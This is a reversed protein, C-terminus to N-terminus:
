LMGISQMAIFRDPLRCRIARHLSSAARFGIYDESLLADVYLHVEAHCEPGENLWGGGRIVQNANRFDSEPNKTYWEWVNGHLDHLGYANTKKLGM